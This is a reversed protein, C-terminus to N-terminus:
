NGSIGLPDFGQGCDSYSFLVFSSTTCAVVHNQEVFHRIERVYRHRHLHGRDAAGAAQPVLLAVFLLIHKTMDAESILFLGRGM